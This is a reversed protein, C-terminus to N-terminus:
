RHARREKPYIYICGGRDSTYRYNTQNIYYYIKQSYEEVTIYRKGSQIGTERGWHIIEIFENIIYIGDTEQYGYYISKPRLEIPEENRM